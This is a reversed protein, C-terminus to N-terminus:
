VIKNIQDEQAKRARTSMFGGGTYASLKKYCDSIADQIADFTPNAQQPTELLKEGYERKLEIMNLCLPCIIHIHKPALKSLPMLIIPGVYNADTTFMFHNTDKGCKPCPYSVVPAHRIPKPYNAFKFMPM